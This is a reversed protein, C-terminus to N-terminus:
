IKANFIALRRFWCQALQIPVSEYGINTPIPIFTAPIHTADECHCEWERRKIELETKHM